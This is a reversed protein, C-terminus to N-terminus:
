SYSRAFDKWVLNPHRVFTLYLSFTLYVSLAHCCLAAGCVRVEVLDAGPWRVDCSLLASLSSVWQEHLEALAKVEALMDDLAESDQGFDYLKM